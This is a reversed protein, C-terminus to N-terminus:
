NDDDDDHVDLDDAAAAARRRRLQNIGTKARLRDRLKDLRYGNRASDGGPLNVIRTDPGLHRFLEYQSEEVTRSSAGPYRREGAALVVAVVLLLVVVAVIASKM